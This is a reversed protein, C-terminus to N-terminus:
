AFYKSACEKLKQFTYTAVILTSITEPLFVTKVAEFFNYNGFIVLLLYHALFNYVMVVLVLLLRSSKSGVRYFYKKSLTVLYACTILVFINIGFISGSFSDRLLGGIFASYISYRIGLLLNFFIILLIIFNPLFFRGVYNFLLFEIIFAIIVFITIYIIRRM